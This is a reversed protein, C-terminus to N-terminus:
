LFTAVPIALLVTVIAAAINAADPEFDHGSGSASNNHPLILCCGPLLSAVLIIFSCVLSEVFKLAVRWPRMVLGLARSRDILGFTRILALCLVGAVLCGLSPHLRFAPIGVGTYAVFVMLWGVSFRM